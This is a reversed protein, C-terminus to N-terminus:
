RDHPSGPFAVITGGAGSFLDEQVPQAWPLSTGPPLKRLNFVEVGAGSPFDRDLTVLWDCRNLVATALHVADPTKKTGNGTTRYEAARRAIPATVDLLLTVEPSRLKALVMDMRPGWSERDSPRKFVEALVVTSVVLEVQGREISDLLEQIREAEPEGKIWALLISSDLLVRPKDTMAM